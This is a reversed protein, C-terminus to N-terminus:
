PDSMGLEERLSRALERDRAALRRLLSERFPADAVRLLDLVQKFGDIPILTEAPAADHRVGPGVGSLLTDRLPEKTPNM